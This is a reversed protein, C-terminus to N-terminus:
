GEKPFYLSIQEQTCGYIAALKERTRKQPRSDLAELQSVASQSIGLKDAVEQQSLGRLIRWAAQLSVNEYTMISCVDNPLGVGDDTGSEKDIREWDDENEDDYEATQLLMRFYDAYPIVAYQPNGDADAIFQVDM